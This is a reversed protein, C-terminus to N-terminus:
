AENWPGCTGAACYLNQNNNIQDPALVVQDSCFVVHSAGGTVPAPKGASPPHRGKRLWPTLFSCFMFKRFRTSLTEIGPKGDILESIRTNSTTTEWFYKLTSILSWPDESNVCAWTFPNWNTCMILVGASLRTTLSINCGNPSAM